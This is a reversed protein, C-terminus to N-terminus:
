SNAYNSQIKLCALYNLLEYACRNNQLYRELWIREVRLADDLYQLKRDCNKPTGSPGESGEVRDVEPSAVVALVSLNSGACIALIFSDFTVEIWLHHVVFVSGM